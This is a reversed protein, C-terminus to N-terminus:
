ADRASRAMRMHFPCYIERQDKDAGCFLRAPEDWEGLPFRCHQSKLRFFSLARMRPPTSSPPPPPPRPRPPPAPPKPVGSNAHRRKPKVPRRPERPELKLRHVKGLVSSRTIRTGKFKNAIQSASLGEKWLQRLLEVREPIWQSNPTNRRRPQEVFSALSMACYEERRQVCPM